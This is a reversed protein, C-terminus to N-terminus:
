GAEAELSTAPEETIPLRIFFTTGKGEESEVDIRGGHKNVIVSHAISLGQGTGKGVEKTTFFPDFIRERVTEPMGCGSDSLRIEVEEGVQRTSVTIVGKETSEDSRGEAIAHAANVIMNLIVQNFEGPICPVPPLAPALDTELEAVYKWENKAVTITSEIARNLDTPTKEDGPHSFEKMARVIKAVRAVGEESQDIASPVEEELYEMDAEEMAERILRVDEQSIGVGGARALAAAFVDLPVKMDQFADKLFRVNDGVFQIPTNIEHAIGAALQGISELKQSQRLQSELAVHDTIDRKVAVYAVVEGTDDFIPSITAEEHFLAGDKRKNVFRGTWVKGSQITGWLDRYFADDHVGSKLVRPNGGVAEKRTYGTITEFAPNTYQITGDTKTIVITDNTQEIATALYSLERSKENALAILRQQEDQLNHIHIADALVGAVSSMFRSKEPGFRREKAGYAALVGWRGAKRGILAEIGTVIGEERLLDNATFRTEEALSEFQVTGSARLTFGVDNKMSDEIPKALDPTRSWGKGARYLFCRKGADRELIVAYPLNLVRTVMDVAEQFVAEYDHNELASRSLEAVASRMRERSALELEREKRAEIVSQVGFIKLPKGHKDFEMVRGMNVVWLWDGSAHRIRHEAEFFDSKGAIHLQMEKWAQNWDKPHILEQMIRGRDELDSRAYGTMELWRDDFRFEDDALNWEWAGLRGAQLVLALRREGEAAARYNRGLERHKAILNRTWRRFRKEKDM